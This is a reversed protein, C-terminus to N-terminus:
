RVRRKIKPVITLLSVTGHGAALAEVVEEMPPAPVWVVTCECGIQLFGGRGHETFGRGNCKPCIM